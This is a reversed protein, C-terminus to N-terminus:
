SRSRSRAAATRRSRCRPPSPPTARRETPRVGADRHARRRPRRDATPTPADAPRRRRDADAPATLPAADATVDRSSAPTPRPATIRSKIVLAFRRRRAASSRARVPARDAVAAATRAAGGDTFVHEFTIPKERPSSSRSTRSAPEDACALTALRSTTPREDITDAVHNSAPPPTRSSRRRCWRPHPRAPPPEPRRGAAAAHARLGPQRHRQSRRADAAERARRAARGDDPLSARAEERAGEHRGGRARAPDDLDPRVKSPPEVPDLMQMALTRVM